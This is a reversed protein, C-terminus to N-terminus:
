LGGVFWIEFQDIELFSEFYDALQIWGAYAAAIEAFAQEMLQAVVLLLERLVSVAVFWDVASCV